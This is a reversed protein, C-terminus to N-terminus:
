RRPIEVSATEVSRVIKAMEREAPSPAVEWGLDQGGIYVQSLFYAKGYRNFVLRTAPAPVRTLIGTRMLFHGVMKGETTRVMWLGHVPLKTIEYQGAAVKNRGAQFAFPINAQFAANTQGYMSAALLAFLAGAAMRSKM